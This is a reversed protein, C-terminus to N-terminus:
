RAELPTFGGLSSISSLNSIAGSAPNAIIRWDSHEWRLQLSGSALIGNSGRVAISINVQSPSFSDIRYGAIQIPAPDGHTATRAARVAATRGLGDAVASRALALAQTPNGSGFAIFNMGALVAGAKSQAFCRPVGDSTRSIPGSASSTPAAVDGILHWRVTQLRSLDEATPVSCTGSPTSSAAVHSARGESDLHSLVVSLAYLVIVAGLVAASIRWKTGFSRDSSSSRRIFM